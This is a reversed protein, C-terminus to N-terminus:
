KNLLAKIEEIDNKMSKLEKAMAEKEAKLKKIEKEQEITHLFLEEIKELNQLNSASLNWQGKEKAEVASTVGPLHHNEKIFAEVEELNTFNYTGKLESNGLFYKQFVYDPVNDTIDGDYIVDGSTILNGDALINGAM